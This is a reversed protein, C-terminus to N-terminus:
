ARSFVGFVMSVWGFVFGIAKIVLFSFGHFGVVLLGCQASRWNTCPSRKVKMRPARAPAQSHFAPTKLILLFFRNELTQLHFGMMFVVEFCLFGANKLIGQDGFASNSLSAAGNPTLLCTEARKLSNLDVAELTM